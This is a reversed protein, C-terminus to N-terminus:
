QRKSYSSAASVAVSIGGAITLWPVMWRASSPIALAPLILLALGAALSVFLSPGWVAWKPWFGMAALAVLLGLAVILGPMTRDVDVIEKEPRCPSPSDKSSSFALLPQSEDHAARKMDAVIEPPSLASSYIRVDDILGAFEFGNLDPRKGIYVPLGSIRQTTTVVGALCGDDLRGNLYVHLARAPADYVGAIHYWRNVELRTKGYRAVLRRYSDALKFGITRSGQDVTTDLQYGLGAFSSVIAADDLPFSSSNIWATITMSGTLRLALPNGMDVYQNRGDLKLSQGVLGPVRTAGNMISGVLNNGSVDLLTNGDRGEFTWEGELSGPSSRGRANTALWARGSLADGLVGVVTKAPGVPSSLLAVLGAAFGTALLATPKTLRLGLPPRWRRSIAVGLGGGIVNCALDIISPSRGVSFLQVAESLLSMLAVLGMVQWRGGASSLLWGLMLYSIVNVVTDPAAPLNLQWNLAAAVVDITPLQIRVPIATFALTLVVVPVHLLILRSTHDHCDPM